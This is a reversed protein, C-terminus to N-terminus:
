KVSCQTWKYIKMSGTTTMRCQRIRTVADKFFGYYLMNLTQIVWLCSSRLRWYFALLRTSPFNSFILIMTSFTHNKDKSFLFRGNGISERSVAFWADHRWTRHHKVRRMWLHLDFKASLTHNVDRFYYRRVSSYRYLSTVVHWLRRFQGYTFKEIYGFSFIRRFFMAWVKEHVSSLDCGETLSDTFVYWLFNVNLIQDASTHLCATM